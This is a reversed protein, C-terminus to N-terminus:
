LVTSETDLESDRHSPVPAAAVPQQDVAFDPVFARTFGKLSLAPDRDCAIRLGHDQIGHQLPRQHRRCPQPPQPPPPISPRNRPKPVPRPRPLSGSQFPTASPAGPSDQPASSPPPTDPPTPTDPPSPETGLPDGQPQPLARPQPPPSVQSPPQPPPHNPAQIHPQNNSHRRPIACPQATPSTPLPQLRAPPSPSLSQASGPSPNSPQGPPPNAPKPPAPAPKKTGRRMMHPSPGMPGAGPTGVCLGSPNAGGTHGGERATGRPLPPPPSTAYSQTAPCM